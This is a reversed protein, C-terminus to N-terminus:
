EGDISKDGNGVIGESLLNQSDQLLKQIIKLIKNNNYICFM